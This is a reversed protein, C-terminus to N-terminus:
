VLDFVELFLQVGEDRGSLVIECPLFRAETLWKVLLTYLDKGGHGHKLPQHSHQRFRLSACKHLTLM